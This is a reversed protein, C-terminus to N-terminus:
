FYELLIQSTLTAIEVLPLSLSGGTAKKDPHILTRKHQFSACQCRNSRGVEAAYFAAYFAACSLGVKGM